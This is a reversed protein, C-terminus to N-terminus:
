WPLPKAIGPRRGTGHFRRPARAREGRTAPPPRSTWSSATARGAATPRLAGRVPTLAGAFLIGDIRAHDHFYEVHRVPQACCGVHAHLQPGCHASLPLHSAECLAAAKLFGTFGGCRTADAQLCDVAGADLMRRFYGPTYGYEGAAVDMTAPARDRLLRLGELDDSSVPEEFWTVASESAFRQAMALAQKRGYAGNADVFLEAAEGIAGRAAAVRAPDAAPDRGIKMKVRGIGQAVWGGLQDTLRSVDYSTFGGSGYVPVEERVPGMLEVLPLGLLKAKLDWLAVDVASIASAAIGPWGVNRVARAMAQWAREIAAAPLGTVVDALVDSVVGAAAAAAYTWGLGTVGGAKARVLVVDTYDWTATGDSEPSDTPVRCVSVEVREVSPLPEAAAGTEHEEQGRQRKPEVVVAM